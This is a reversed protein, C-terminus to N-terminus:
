TVLAANPCVTPLGMAYAQSGPLAVGPVVTSISYKPRRMRAVTAVSGSTSGSIFRIRRQATSMRMGWRRAERSAPRKEPRGGGNVAPLLPEVLLWRADILDQPTGGDGLQRDVTSPDIGVIM